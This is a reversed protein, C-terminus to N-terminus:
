QRGAVLAERGVRQRGPVPLGVIVGRAAALIYEQERWFVLFRPDVGDGGRLGEPGSALWCGDSMPMWIASIGLTCGDM